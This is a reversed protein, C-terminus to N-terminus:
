SILNLIWSINFIKINQKEMLFFQLHWLIAHCINLFFDQM